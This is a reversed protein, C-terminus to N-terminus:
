KEERIMVLVAGTLAAVAEGAAPIAASVDPSLTLGLSTLLGVLGVWTSKEQLRDLIWNM